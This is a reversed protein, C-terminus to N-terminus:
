EQEIGLISLEALHAYKGNDYAQNMIIKFHSYSEKVDVPYYQPATNSRSYIDYTELNTWEIGDNSGLISFNSFPYGTTCNPDNRCQLVVRKINIKKKMDVALWHPYGPSDGSHRSHWYTPVLGANPTNEILGDLVREPEAGGYGTQGTEEYSSATISWGSRDIITLPINAEQSTEFVDVCTTDPIFFSKYSIETGVRYDTIINNENSYADIKLTQKEGQKNLYYLETYKLGNSIDATNWELVLKENDLYAINLSRNYISSKYSDGYVVSNLEVPISSNGKSDLTTIIFSYNKEELNDLVIEVDKKNGDIDFEREQEKNNWSVVAKVISPDNGKKWKLVVRGDGSYAKANVPKQPYTIGDPVVYEKYADEMKMCSYLVFIMGLLFSLNIIKKM